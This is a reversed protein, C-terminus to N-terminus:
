FKTKELIHQQLAFSVAKERNPAALKFVISRVCAEISSVSLQTFDAIQENRLGKVMLELVDFEKRSLHYDNRPSAPDADMLLTVVEPALNHKGECADRIANALVDISGDKLLYGIVGAQLAGKIRASETTSTLAIVEIKPFKSRFLRTATVGDMNPMLLDMLVVDPQHLTALGIAVRADATDAVVAIDDFTELAVRLGYRVADHDDVIMVKIKRADNM